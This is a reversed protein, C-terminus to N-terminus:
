YKLLDILNKQTGFFAVVLLVVVRLLESQGVVAQVVVEAAAQGEIVVEAPLPCM